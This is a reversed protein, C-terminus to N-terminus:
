EKPAMSPQPPRHTWMLNPPMMSPSPIYSPPVMVPPMMSPSPIYSPQVMVPPMGSCPIGWPPAAGSQVLAIRPDMPQYSPEGLRAYQLMMPPRRERCPRGEEVPAVTEPQPQLEPATQDPGESAAPVDPVPMPPNPETLSDEHGWPPGDAELHSEPQEAGEHVQNGSFDDQRPSGMEAGSELSSSDCISNDVTPADLTFPKASPDLVSKAVQGSSTDARQDAPLCFLLPGEDDSSDGDVPPQPSAVPRPRTSSAICRQPPPHSPRPDVDAQMSGCPLLLNRHLVRRKHKGNIAEVEYVPSNEGKRQVVVYVQDEWYSRLKGPGPHRGVNRVLVRDGPHLVSSRTKQDHYRKGRETSKAAHRAAISYAEEMQAKWKKVFQNHDEAAPESPPNLGFAADVPLRPSRGYLLFFPSFGTAANTTCNYAHVVKQLSDKWNAKQETTLTRLMALLTRNLRECQGNGQPHYPTTRSNAVGSLQQLRKFLRNEFEGGQDHHIRHPYGFRLVFDNFIKDAVTRASKDKTAYAQAFRTFSDIIVLIYEFGGKSRELHVFDISIVEFPATTVITGLPERTQQAPKRDKLCPCVHMCYHEIDRQMHPWYFRDRALDLVRGAGLHGMNNHLERYAIPRLAEPLIIQSRGGKRRVLLGNALSLHEWDRLLACVDSPDRATDKRMPRKGHQLYRIVRAIVPDDHQATQIDEKEMTKGSTSLTPLDSTVNIATAWTTDGQIQANLATVTTGIEDRSVEATCGKIYSDIDLPMRSLTDADVNNKGPRYKITFHYDALEAVWRHGTANLRASSLVYTLPNNDTYVTFPASYYLYDQFKETIAWKLALFELKGSHYHYNKEAPSLTRSGYSIVRMKGQLRQYLVAGLGESSADTHVIFPENYDPFAMIPPTVLRGLLRELVQQHHNTWNIKQKSLKQVPKVKHSTKTKTSLKPKKPEAGPEVRLLEYLPKAIRSFDQIYSRYYGLLGLLKRLDGVTEPKREGISKVAMIDSPDPRHGDASVLRGLYRVEGRFLECKNPRLKVGHAQMRQLVKQLHDLHHEFDDSYVLVDDLYTMAIEGNLGELCTEMFRQFVAPANTLGFPIRVWEYLGWPTIFATLPRSEDSMFGQHYAKGQDLTSFWHNGGLSDLVDKIRPIPQRDPITKRNLERYDVCLRLSGDKKRVCVVPSSYPSNSKAIWNRSILDSLYTRVEQYLPRPLSMYTKRVPTTDSLNIKMKLDPASGLDTDDRAFAASNEQLLREAAAKQSPELHSLDVPPIWKDGSSVSSVTARGKATVSNDQPMSWDKFFSPEVPYISHVLQIQGLLSRRRLVIDRNTTNRVRIIVPCYTGPILSVVSEEVQLGEPWQQEVDPQFLGTIKDDLPGARTRCRVGISSQQPIVIDKRGSRVRCVEEPDNTQILQVLQDASRQQLNKMAGGLLRSADNGSHQVVMEIVNYGLIPQQLQNRTVLAPFTIPPSDQPFRMKLEIEIWGEFPIPTGNAARLDLNSEHEFLESLPRVSTSSLNDKLWEASILSVQAGTDWLVTTPSDNLLCDVTCRPGVLNTVKRHHRPTVHCIFTGDIKNHPPTIPQSM